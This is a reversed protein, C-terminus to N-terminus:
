RNALLTEYDPLESLFRVRSWDDDIRCCFHKLGNTVVLWRVHLQMNYRCIQDFTKQSIEVSPAKYEIIMLPTAETDYVVTDSRKSTSGIHLSIENAICGQPYGKQLMLFHTFHQRVWEEPTLAVYKRRFVDFVTLRGKSKKISLNVQPLNLTLM